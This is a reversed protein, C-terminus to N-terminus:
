VLKGATRRALPMAPREDLELGGRRFLGGALLAASSPLFDVGYGSKRGDSESGVQSPRVRDLIGQVINTLLEWSEETQEGSQRGPFTLITAEKTEHGVDM